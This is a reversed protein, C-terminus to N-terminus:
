NQSIKPPQFAAVKCPGLAHPCAMIPGSKIPHCLTKDILVRRMSTQAVV